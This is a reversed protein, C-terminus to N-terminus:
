PVPPVHEGGDVAIAGVRGRRGVEGAVAVLHRDGDRRRRLDVVVASSQNWVQSASRTCTASFIQRYSEVVPLRASLSYSSSAGSSAVSRSQRSMTLSFCSPVSAYRFLQLIIIQPEQPIRMSPAATSAHLVRMYSMACDPCTGTTEAIPFRGITFSRTTSM